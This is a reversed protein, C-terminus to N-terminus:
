FVQFIIVLNISFVMKNINITFFDSSCAFIKAYLESKFYLNNQIKWKCRSQHLYKQM